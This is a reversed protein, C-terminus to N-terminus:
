RLGLGLAIRRAADSVLKGRAAIHSAPMRDSPASITIAAIPYNTSYMIPSGVANIGPLNEGLNVAFGRKRALALEEM